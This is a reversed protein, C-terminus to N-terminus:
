TRALHRRLTKLARHVAVKLAGVSVGSLESAEALSLERLKVLDIALRQGEPLAAVARALVPEMGPECPGADATQEALDPDLSDERDVTRRRRRLADISRRNAIALLWRRFSRSPDYAHRVRHVTLLIDQVVDEARERDRHRYRVVIRLLPLSERLLEAYARSDGDQARAMLASWRLDLADTAAAKLAREAADV